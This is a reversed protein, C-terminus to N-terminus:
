MNQIVKRWGDIIELQTQYKKTTKKTTEKKTASEKKM